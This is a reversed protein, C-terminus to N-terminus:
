CVTAVFSAVCLTIMLYDVFDRSAATVDNIENIRFEM